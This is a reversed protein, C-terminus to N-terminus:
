LPAPDSKIVRKRKSDKKPSSSPKSLESNINRQPLDALNFDSSTQTAGDSAMAVMDELMFILKDLEGKHIETKEFEIFKNHSWAEELNITVDGNSKLTLDLRNDKKAFYSLIFRLVVERWPTNGDQLVDEIKPYSSTNCM